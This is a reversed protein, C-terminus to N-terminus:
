SLRGYRVAVLSRVVSVRGRDLDVEEWQLGLVEGRRMGTTAMLVWAAYLRDDRVSTLFSRLQEPSWVRMNATRPVPPSALDTPNRGLHGWRVADHLAKHLMTHM